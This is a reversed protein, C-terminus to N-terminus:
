RVAGQGSDSKQFTRETDPKLYEVSVIQTDPICMDGDACIDDSISAAVLTHGDDRTLLWGITVIYKASCRAKLDEVDMWTSSSHSDLWTIMVLDHTSQFQTLKESAM